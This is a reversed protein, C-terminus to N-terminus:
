GSPIINSLRFSETVELRKIGRGKRQGTSTAIEEKLEQSMVDLDVEALLEKVAEAGIAAYFSEGYREPEGTNVSM